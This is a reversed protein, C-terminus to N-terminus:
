FIQKRCVVKVEQLGWLQLFTALLVFMTRSCDRPSGQGRLMGSMSLRFSVRMKKENDKDEKEKKKIIFNCICFNPPM